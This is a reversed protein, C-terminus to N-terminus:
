ALFAGRSHRCYRGYNDIIIQEREWCCKSQMQRMYVVVHIVRSLIFLNMTLMTLGLVHPGAWRSANESCDEFMYVRDTTVVDFRNGPKLVVEIDSSWPVEGKLTDTETEIYLLRPTSTLLLMRKRKSLRKKKYM